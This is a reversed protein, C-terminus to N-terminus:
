DLFNDNHISLSYTEPGFVTILFTLADFGRGTEGVLKPLQLRQDYVEPIVVGFTEGRVTLKVVHDVEIVGLGHEAESTGVLFADPTIKIQGLFKGARNGFLAGGDAAHHGALAPLVLGRDVGDMAVVDQAVLQPESVSDRVEGRSDSQIALSLRPAYTM